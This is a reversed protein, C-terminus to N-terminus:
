LKEGVKPAGIALNSGFLEGAIVLQEDLRPVCASGNFSEEVLERFGGIEGLCRTSGKSVFINEAGAVVVDCSRSLELVGATTPAGFRVGILSEDGEARMEVGGVLIAGRGSGGETEVRVGDSSCWGVSEGVHDLEERVHDVGLEGLEGSSGDGM